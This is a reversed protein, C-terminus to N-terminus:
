GASARFEVAVGHLESAPVYISSGSETHPVVRQRLLRRVAALEAVEFSLLAGVARTATDAVVDFGVRRQLAEATCLELVVQGPQFRVSGAGDDVPECGYLRRMREVSGALEDAAEVYTIGCWSRAGNPHGRWEDREFDATSSMRMANFMLRSQGPVPLVIDVEVPEGPGFPALTMHLLQSPLGLAAFHAQAAAPTPTAHVLMAVGERQCLLQQLAPMATRPDARAIEIFNAAGPAYPHLLIAASGGDGGATGGGMPVLQRVPRVTFGVREWAAIATRHDFVALMAHDLESIIPTNM